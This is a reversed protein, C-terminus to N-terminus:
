DVQSQFTDFILVILPALKRERNEVNSYIFPLDEVKTPSTRDHTLFYILRYKQEQSLELGFVDEAFFEVIGSPTRKSSPVLDGFRFNQASLYNVIDRIANSRNLLNQETIFEEGYFRKGDRNLGCAGKWGFVSPPEFISQGAKATVDTLLWIFWDGKELDQTNQSLHTRFFKRAFSVVLDVPSKLCRHRAAQSFMAQSRLIRSLVPKLEYGSNRLETALSTVIAESVDPYVLQAFLREALFRASGPHNFMVHDIFSSSSFSAQAEAGSIGQFVWYPNQDKLDPSFLVKRFGSDWDEYYGSMFATSGRITEEDYHKIRTLPDVPGLIFLELLERSFNQNPAGVHNDQNNLWRSMAGDAVMAKALDNFNGTANQLLLNWHERIQQHTERSFGLGVRSLNTAFHPHLTLLAIRLKFPNDTFLAQYLASLQLPYTYWTKENTNSDTTKQREAWFLSEALASPEQNLLRDVVSSLGENQLASLLEPSGGFAVKDLFHQAERRTLRDQYPALSEPDGTFDNRPTAPTLPNSLQSCNAQLSHLIQLEKQLDAIRREIVRVSRSDKKQRARNRVAILQRVTSEISMPARETFFSAKALPTRDLVGLVSKQMLCAYRGSLAAFQVRNRASIPIRKGLAEASLPLTLLFSCLALFHRMSTSFLGIVPM